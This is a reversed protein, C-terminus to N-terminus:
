KKETAEEIVADLGGIKSPYNKWEGTFKLARSVDKTIRVPREEIPVSADVEVKQEVFDDDGEQEVFEDDEAAVVIVNNKKTTEATKKTRKKGKKQIVNMTGQYESDKVKVKFKALDGSLEINTNTKDNNGSILSNFDFTGNDEEEADNSATTTVATATQNKPLQSQFYKILTECDDISRQFKLQNARRLRNLYRKKL